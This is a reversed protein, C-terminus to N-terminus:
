AAAKLKAPVRRRGVQRIVFAAIAVLAFVSRLPAHPSIRPIYALAFIAWVYYMAFSVLRPKLSPVGRPWLEAVSNAALTYILLFAFGGVFVTVWTFKALFAAWGM